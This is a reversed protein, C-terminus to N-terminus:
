CNLHEITVMMKVENDAIEIEHLDKYPLKKM